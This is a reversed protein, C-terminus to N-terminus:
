KIVNNAVCLFIYYEKSSVPTSYPPFIGISHLAWRFGIKTKLHYTESNAMSFRRSEAAPLSGWIEYQKIGISYGSGSLKQSVRLLGLMLGETDQRRTRFGMSMGPGTTGVNQVQAPSTIHSCRHIRVGFIRIWCTHPPSLSIHIQWGRLLVTVRLGDSKM